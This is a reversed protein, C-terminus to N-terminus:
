KEIQKSHVWDAVIKSRHKPDDDHMLVFQKSLGLKKVSGYLNKDIISMSIQRTMNDELFVLNGVDKGWRRTVDNTYYFKINYRRRKKDM